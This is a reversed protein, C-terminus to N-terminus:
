KSKFLGKGPEQYLRIWDIAYNAPIVSPVDNDDIRPLGMGDNSTNLPSIVGAGLIIYMPAAFGEMQESPVATDRYFFTNYKEGDIYMSMETEDWEWGYVHYEENLTESNSFKYPAKYKHQTHKNSGDQWWIHLNPTATDLSGFIEFIDVEIGWGFKDHWYTAPLLQDKASVLWFSPWYGKLYFPKARMELYGQSFNMTYRSDIQPAQSWKIMNNHPDYYRKAWLEMTKGTFVVNDTTQIVDPPDTLICYRWKSEDLEASNFEDGWAYEYKGLKKEYKVTKDNDLLFDPNIEAKEEESVTYERKPVTSVITKTSENLSTQSNSSSSNEDSQVSSSNDSSVNSTNNKSSSNSNVKETEGGCGASLILAMCICIASIIRKKM